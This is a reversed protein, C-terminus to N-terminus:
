HFGSKLVMDAVAQAYVEMGFESPHCDEPTACMRRAEKRPLSIFDTTKLVNRGAAEELSRMLNRSRNDLDFERGEGISTGLALHVFLFPVGSQTLATLDAMFGTDVRYDDYTLRPNTSPLLKSWQAQFPSRYRILGYVYSSRLDFLDARAEGNKIAIARHKAILKQMIPDRRQEDASKKLQQQCWARRASPLVMFTDAANEPNPNPSNEETTYVRVDDGGGVVTRWTRSRNFASGHFAFIVLSPRLEPLKGAAFDMMQLLGYGDRGLNLVRVTSGLKGELKDGLMKTWAPGEAEARLFSDGFVVVRLAAENFDAVPPGFNGQENASVMQSCGTIAGRDLLTVDVKLAPVYGYGFDSDYHWFSDSLVSFKAEDIATAAFYSPHKWYLYLRYGAEIAVAIVALTAALRLM